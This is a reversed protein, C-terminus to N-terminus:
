IVKVKKVCKEASILNSLKNLRELNDKSFKNSELAILDQKALERANKNTLIKCILFKSNKIVKEGRKHVKIKKNIIFYKSDYIQALTKVIDPYRKLKPTNAKQHEKSGLHLMLIGGKNNLLSRLYAIPLGRGGGCAEYTFTYDYEKEKKPILEYNSCIYKGFRTKENKKVWNVIEKSIDSYDVEAGGRKLAQAWSAYYGAIVLVKEKKNIGIKKLLDKDEPTTGQELSDLKSKNKGKFGFGIEHSWKPKLIEKLCPINYIKM